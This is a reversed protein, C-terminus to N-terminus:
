LWYTKFLTADREDYFDLIFFWGPHDDSISHNVRVPNWKNLNKECWEKVDPRLNAYSEGLGYSHSVIVPCKQDYVFLRTM